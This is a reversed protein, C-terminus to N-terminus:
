KQKIDEEIRALITVTAKQTQAVMHMIKVMEAQTTIMSPPMYWLPRGESDKVDHAKSLNELMNYIDTSETIHRTMKALVTDIIKRTDLRFVFQLIILAVGFFAMLTKDSLPEIM